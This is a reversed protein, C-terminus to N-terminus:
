GIMLPQGLAKMRKWEGRRTQERHAISTPVPAPTLRRQRHGAILARLGTRARSVRSKLTGAPVGVRAAAEDNSLGVISVLRLAERQEAPLDEMADTVEALEIVAEQSGDTAMIREAAVEDYDGNFRDRRRMSLFRNRLITFTWAKLNTDAVFDIRARWARLMTDQVLDDATDADRSLSRAYNRLAPRLMVLSAEFADDAKSTADKNSTRTSGDHM